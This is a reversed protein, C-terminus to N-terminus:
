CYCIYVLSRAPECRHRGNPPMPLLLAVRGKPMNIVNINHSVIILPRYTVALRRSDEQWKQILDGADKTSSCNSAASKLNEPIYIYSAPRRVTRFVMNTGIEM